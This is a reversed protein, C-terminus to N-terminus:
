QNSGDVINFYKSEIKILDQQTLGKEQVLYCHCLNIKHLYQIINKDNGIYLVNNDEKKMLQILKLLVIPQKDDSDYMLNHDYGIVHSYIEDTKHQFFEILQVIQLIKDIDRSEHKTLVFNIPCQVNKINNLHKKMQNIRELGGFMSLAPNFHKNNCYNSDLSQWNNIDLVEYIEDLKDPKTTLVFDM